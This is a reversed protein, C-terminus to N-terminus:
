SKKADTRLRDLMPKLRRISEMTVEVPHHSHNYLEVTVWGCYGIEALTRLIGDIPMEGDGPVLHYHVRKGREDSAIDEMHIGHIRGAFERIQPLVAEGCVWSHGVDFNLGFAPSPIEELMRRAEDATGVLLDPEYELNLKVKRSAAYETCARLGSALLDWAKTRDMGAPPYGAGVTVGPAGAAAALDIARRTYELKFSRLKPDSDTFGPGFHQGPPGKRDGWYGSCTFGNVGSAALGHKGLLAGIAEFDKDKMDPLWLLPKDALIEAGAYGARSIVAFATDLTWTGDTYANTAFSLKM